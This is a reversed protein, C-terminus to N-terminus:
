MHLSSLMICLTLIMSLHLAGTQTEESENMYKTTANCTSTNEYMSGLAM